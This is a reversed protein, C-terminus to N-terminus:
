SHAGQNRDHLALPTSFGAVLAAEDTAELRRVGLSVALNPRAQARALRVQADRLRAESAFRLFDPTREIRDFFVQFSQPGELTFLSAVAQTYAPEADSWMAALLYRAARLESAAQREALVARTLARQARSQEAVPSRAAEARRRIAEWTDRSLQSAQQASRVREQAAVVDIFRRTVEALVDLQRARQTISALDTEAEASAIRLSRKDGLEVVQSLSLTAELSRVGSTAGTGAFNELEVNLEPNIRLAAQTGRAQAAILEYRSALLDPNRKLTLEIAQSLSIDGTASESAVSDATHLWGVACAVIARIMSSYM